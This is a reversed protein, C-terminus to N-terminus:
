DKESTARLAAQVKAALDAPAKGEVRELLGALTVEDLLRARYPEPAELLERAEDDGLRNELYKEVLLQFREETMGPMDTMRGGGGQRGPLPGRGRGHVQPPHRPRPLAHHRGLHGVPRRPGRDGRGQPTGPLPPHRALARDAP